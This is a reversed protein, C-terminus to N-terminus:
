LRFIPLACSGPFINCLFLFVGCCEPFLFGFFLFFCPANAYLDVSFELKQRRMKAVIISISEKEDREDRKWTHLGKYETVFGLYYKETLDLLGIKEGGGNELM